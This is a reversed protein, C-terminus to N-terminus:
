GKTLYKVAEMFSYGHLLRIFKISDGSQSCGFCYFHNSSYITFSAYKENHFPCLAVLNKGSRRVKGEFLDTIPVSKALRIQEDTIKGKLVKGKSIWLLDKLKFIQKKVKVMEKGLNQKLLERGLWFDFENKAILRLETLRKRILIILETRAKKREKIIKPLDSKIEPFIQLLEAPTPKIQLTYYEKELELLYLLQEHEANDEM